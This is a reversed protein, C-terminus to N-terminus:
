FDGLERAENDLKNREVERHLWTHLGGVDLKGDEGYGTERSLEIKMGDISWQAQDGWAIVNDKVGYKQTLKHELVAYLRELEDNDGAYSVGVIYLRGKWFGLLTMDAGDLRHSGEYSIYAEGDNSGYSDIPSVVQPSTEIVERAEALSCGLRLGLFETDVVGVIQGTDVPKDSAQLSSSSSQADVTEHHPAGSGFGQIESPDDNLAPKALTSICMFVSYAMILGSVSSFISGGVVKNTQLPPSFLAPIVLGSLGLLMGALLLYFGSDMNLSIDISAAVAAGIAEWGESEELSSVQQSKIDGEAKVGFYYGLALITLIGCVALFVGGRLLGAHSRLALITCAVSVSLGFICIFTISFFYLANMEDAPLTNEYVAMEDSFTTLLKYGTTSILKNNNCSVSLFPLALALLLLIITPSGILHLKNGNEVSPRTRVSAVSTSPVTFMHNCSPCEVQQGSLDDSSELSQKCRPCEFDIDGM